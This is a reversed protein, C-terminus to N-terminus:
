GGADEPEPVVASQVPLYIWGPVANATFPLMAFRKGCRRVYNKHLKRLAALAQSETMM